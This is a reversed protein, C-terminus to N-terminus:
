APMAVYPEVAIPAQGALEHLMEMLLFRDAIADVAEADLNETARVCLECISTFERQQLLGPHAKDIEDFLVRPGHTNILRFHARGQMRAYLTAVDDDHINGVTFSSIKGGACCCAQFAGDPYIVPKNVVEGCPRNRGFTPLPHYRREHAKREARGLGILGGYYVLIHDKGFSRVMEEDDLIFRLDFLSEQPIGYLRSFEEVPEAEGTTVFSVIRLLGHADACDLANRLTEAALFELHFRDASFNIETLGANVMRGLMAMGRAKDKAWFGNSVIRTALGLQSCLGILHELDDPRMFPEGGTFTVKGFDPIAAAELILREALEMPMFENIRPHSEIGCHRCEINCRRSLMLAFERSKPIARLSSACASM